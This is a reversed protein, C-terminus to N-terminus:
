KKTWRIDDVSCGYFSALTLAREIPVKTTFNEYNAYTNVPIDTADAVQSQTLDANVRLAKLSLAMTM